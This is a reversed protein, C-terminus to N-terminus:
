GVGTNSAPPPSVGNHVAHRVTQALTRADETFGTILLTGGGKLRLKCHVDWGASRTVANDQGNEKVKRIDTWPIVRTEGTRRYVLGGERLQFV